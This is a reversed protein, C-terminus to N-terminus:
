SKGGQVSASAGNPKKNLSALIDGFGRAPAAQVPRGPQPRAAPSTSASPPTAYQMGVTKVVDATERLETLLGSALEVEVMQTVRKVGEVGSSVKADIRQSRERLEAVLAEVEPLTKKEIREGIREWTQIIPMIREDAFKEVRGTLDKVLPHNAPDSEAKGVSNALKEFLPVSDRNAELATRFAGQIAPYMESTGFYLVLLQFFFMVLVTALAKDPVFTLLAATGGGYVVYGLVMLTRGRRRVSGLIQQVRIDWALKAPSTETSM